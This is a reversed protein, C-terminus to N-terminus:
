KVSSCCSLEIFLQDAHSRTTDMTSAKSIDLALIHSNFNERINSREILNGESAKMAEGRANWIYRMTNCCANKHSPYATNM